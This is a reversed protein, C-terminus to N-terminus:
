NLQCNETCLFFLMFYKLNRIFNIARVVTNNNEANKMKFQQKLGMPILLVTPHAQCM